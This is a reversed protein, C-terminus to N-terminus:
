CRPDVISLDLMVPSFIAEAPPAGPNSCQAGKRILLYAYRGAPKPGHNGMTMGTDKMLVLMLDLGSCADDAWPVAVLDIDRYASQQFPSALSSGHLAISWRQKQALDRLRQIFAHDPATLIM